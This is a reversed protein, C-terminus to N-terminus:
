RSSRRTRGCARRTLSQRSPQQVVSVADEPTIRGEPVVATAEVTIGHWGRFAMSGIHVFHHDTAHGNDSSDSM